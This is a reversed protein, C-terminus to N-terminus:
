TLLAVAAVIAWIAISAAATMVLGSGPPLREEYRRPSPAGKLALTKMVTSRVPVAVITTKGSCGKRHIFWHCGIQNLAGHKRWHKGLM